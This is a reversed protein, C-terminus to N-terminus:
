ATSAGKNRRILEQARHIVHDVTFGYHEFIIKYPASAGFREVSISDGLDGIWKEWGQSVGAEVSLRTKIDPPLV